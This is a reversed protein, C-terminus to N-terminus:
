RDVRQEAARSRPVSPTALAKRGDIDLKRYVRTLHQEVTSATVSLQAAIERNTYGRGALIAVRLESYSLQTLAAEEIRELHSDQLDFGPLLEDCLPLARCQRAHRWARRRAIWSKVDEGADAYAEALDGTARALEYRHGSAMLEEIAHRLLEIRREPGAFHSRLRLTAGRFQQLGASCDGAQEALLAAARERDGTGLLVDVLDLRWPLLAPRDVGMAVAIEGARTFAAVAAEPRGTALMHHGRARLFGLCDVSEFYRDSVPAALQLGAEEYEGMRTHALIRVARLRTGFASDTRPPACREARRAQSLAGAFDGLALSAEAAVGHFMAQWGPAELHRAAEAFRRAYTLAEGARGAFVLCRADNLLEPLAADTVAATGLRQRVRPLDDEAVGDPSELWATGVESGAPYPGGSYKPRPRNLLARDWWQEAHRDVVGLGGFGPAQLGGDGCPVGPHERHERDEVVARLGQEGASPNLRCTVISASVQLAARLPGEAGKRALALAWLAAHADNRALAQGAADRLVDVGWPEDVRGVAMLHGAIVAPDAATIHLLSAAAAHLDGLRAPDASRTVAEAVVPHRFACGRTIGTADLVGVSREVAGPSAGTLRAVLEPTAQGALVAIGLATEAAERGSRHLCDLATEVVLGGQAPVPLGRREPDLRERVLAELLLPNGGVIAHFERALGDMDADAGAPLAAGELHRALLRATGSTSLPGLRIWRFRELRVLYSDLHAHQLAGAPQRAVLVAIGGPRAGEVAHRLLRVGHRGAAGGDLCVVLGRG